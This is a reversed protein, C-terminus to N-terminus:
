NLPEGPGAPPPEPTAEPAPDRLGPLLRRGTFGDGLGHYFRVSEEGLRWCLMVDKEGLKMPFDVLGSQIDQLVAGMDKIRNIHGQAVIKLFDLESEPQMFTTADVKEGQRRAGEKAERLKYLKEEIEGLLAQLQKLIRELEPICANAEEVNFYRAFMTIAAGAGSRM